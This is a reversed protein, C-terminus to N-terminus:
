TQTGVRFRYGINRVTEIYSHGNKEINIREYFGRHASLERTMVRGCTVAAIPLKVAREQVLENFVHARREGSGTKAHARM